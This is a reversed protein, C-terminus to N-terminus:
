SQKAQEQHLRKGFSCLSPCTHQPFRGIRVGLAALCLQL